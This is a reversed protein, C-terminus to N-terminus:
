NFLYDFLVNLFSVLKTEISIKSIQEFNNSSHGQFNGSTEFADSSETFDSFEDFDDKHSERKEITEQFTELGSGNTFDTFEEFDDFNDSARGTIVEGNESEKNNEFKIQIEQWELEEM